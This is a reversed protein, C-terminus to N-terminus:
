AWAPPKNNKIVTHSSKNSLESGEVLTTATSSSNVLFQKYERAIDSDYGPFQIGPKKLYQKAKSNGATSMIKLHEETLKDMKSSRVFSIHSGMQRHKGACDICLYIGFSVSIWEPVMSIDCDFCRQNSPDKYLSDFTSM